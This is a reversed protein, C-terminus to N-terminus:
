PTSEYIHRVRDKWAEQVQPGAGVEAAVEGQTPIPLVRFSKGWFTAVTKASLRRFKTTVWQWEHVITRGKVIDEIELATTNSLRWEDQFERIDICGCAWLSYWPYQPYWEGVTPLRYGYHNLFGMTDLVQLYDYCYGAKAWEEGFSEYKGRSFAHPVFERCAAMTDPHISWGKFRTSAFRALRFLRGGHEWLRQYENSYEKSSILRLTKSHIDAVGGVLDIVDQTGWQMYVANITLDRRFADETITSPEVLAAHVGDYLGERRFTTHEIPQNDLWITVVLHSPNTIQCRVGHNLYCYSGVENPLLSSCIDMDKPTQGLLTDRVTGGVM